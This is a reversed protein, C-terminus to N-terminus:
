APTERFSIMYDMSGNDSGSDGLLTITETAILVQGKGQPIDVLNTDASSARRLRRGGLIIDMNTNAGGSIYRNAIGIIEVKKGAGVTLLTVVTTGVINSNGNLSQNTIKQSINRSIVQPLTM